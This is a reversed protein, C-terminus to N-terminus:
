DKYKEEIVQYLECNKYKEDCFVKRHLNREAGNKFEVKVTCTDTIGECSISRKGSALFFPCRANVDDFMTTM